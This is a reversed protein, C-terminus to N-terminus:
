FSASEPPPNWWRGHKKNHRCWTSGKPPTWGCVKLANLIRAEDTFSMLQRLQNKGDGPQAQGHQDSYLLELEECISKFTMPFQSLNSILEETTADTNRGQENAEIQDAFLRRPLNARIGNQYMQWAEAWLQMRNEDLYREVNSGAKLYIIVFRRNGSPDNPLPTESNTTGVWVFRRLRDEPDERYALRTGSDNKSTLIRKMHEIEKRGLGVMESFEILVKGQTAEVFAKPSRDWDIDDSFWRDRLGAPFIWQLSRSKGIGQPGSFVPFEDLQCGPEMTRQISGLHAYRSAWQVLESKGAEFLDDLLFNLRPVGDWEINAVSQTLWVMVPDVQNRQGASAIIDRFEDRGWRVPVFYRRPPEKRHDYREFRYSAKITFRMDARWGTTIEIWDGEPDNRYEHKDSRTNKRIELGMYGCIEDFVGRTDAEDTNVVIPRGDTKEPGADGDDSSEGPPVVIPKYPKSASPSYVAQPYKTVATHILEDFIADLRDRGYKEIWAPHREAFRWLADKLDQETTDKFRQWGRLNCQWDVCAGRAAFYRTGEEGTCERLSRIDDLTQPAGSQGQGQRQGQGQAQRPRYTAPVSPSSYNVWGTFPEVGPNWRAVPDYSCYCVRKTDSCSTDAKVNLDSKLEDVLCQWAQKHQAETTPVPDVRFLGKVGQGSPSLFACVCGRKDAMLSRTAIAEDHSLGDCDLCIIGTHREAM